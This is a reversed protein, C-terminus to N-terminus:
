GVDANRSEESKDHQSHQESVIANDRKMKLVVSKGFFDTGYSEYEYHEITTETRFPIRGLRDHPLSDEQRRQPDYQGRAKRAQETM